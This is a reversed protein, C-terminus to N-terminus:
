HGEGNAEVSPEAGASEAKTSEIQGAGDELNAEMQGEGDDPILDYFTSGRPDEEDQSCPLIDEDGDEDFGSLEQTSPLIPSSEAEEGEEKKEARVVSTAIVCRVSSSTEVPDDNYHKEIQSSSSRRVVSINLQQSDTNYKLAPANEAQNPLDCDVPVPDDCVNTTLAGLALCGEPDGTVLSM